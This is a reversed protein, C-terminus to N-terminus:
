VCGVCLVHIVYMFAGGDGGGNVGNGNGDGDGGGNGGVKGFNVTVVQM